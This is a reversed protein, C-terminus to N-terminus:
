QVMSSLPAAIKFAHPSSFTGSFAGSSNQVGGCSSRTQEIRSNQVPFCPLSVRPSHFVYRVLPPPGFGRKPLPTRRSTEEGRRKGGRWPATQSKSAWEPTETDLTGLCVRQDYPFGIASLESSFGRPRYDMLGDLRWETPNVHALALPLTGYVAGKLVLKLGISVHAQDASLM